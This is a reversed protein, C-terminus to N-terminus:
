TYAGDLAGRLEAFGGWSLGHLLNMVGKLNKKYWEPGHVSELHDIPHGIDNHADEGAAQSQTQFLITLGLAIFQPFRM